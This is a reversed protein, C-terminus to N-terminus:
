PREGAAGRSYAPAQPHRRRAPWRSIGHAYRASATTAPPIGRKLHLQNRQSAHYPCYQRKEKHQTPRRDRRLASGLCLDAEGVLVALQLRWLIYHGHFLVAAPM